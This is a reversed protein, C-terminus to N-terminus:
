DRDRCRLRRGNCHGGTGAAPRTGTVIMTAASSPGCCGCSPRRHPEWRAPCVRSAPGLRGPPACRNVLSDKRGQRGPLGYRAVSFRLWGWLRPGVGILGRAGLVAGPECPSRSAWPGGTRAVGRRTAAGGRRASPASCGVVHSFGARRRV